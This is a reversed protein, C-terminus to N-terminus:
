QEDEDRVWKYTTGTLMDRATVYSVELRKAVESVTEREERVSRRADRVQEETLARRPRTVRRMEAETLPNASTM